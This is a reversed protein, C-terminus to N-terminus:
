RECTILTHSLKAHRQYVKKSSKCELKEKEYESYIEPKNLTLERKQRIQEGLLLTEKKYDKELPTKPKAPVYLGLYERRTLSGKTPHPIPPYFDLYLSKRGKTIDKSRLKVKISV